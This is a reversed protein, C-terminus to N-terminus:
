TTNSMTKESRHRTNDLKLATLTGGQGDFFFDVLHEFPHPPPPDFANQVINM